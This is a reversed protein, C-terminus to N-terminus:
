KNYPQANRNMGAQIRLTYVLCELYHAFEQGFKSSNGRDLSERIIANQYPYRIASLIYRGILTILIFNFIPLYLLISLPHAITKIFNDVRTDEPLQKRLEDQYFAVLIQVVVFALTSSFIFLWLCKQKCEVMGSNLDSNTSIEQDYIFRHGGDEEQEPLEGRKQMLKLLKKGFEGQGTLDTQKSAATMLVSVSGNKLKRSQQRSTIRSQLTSNPDNKFYNKDYGSRKENLM